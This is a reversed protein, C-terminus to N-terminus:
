TDEGGKRAGERRALEADILAIRNTCFEVDGGAEQDLTFARRLVRLTDTAMERYLEAVTM